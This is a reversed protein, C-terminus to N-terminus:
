YLGESYLKPGDLGEGCAEPHIIQAAALAVSYADERSLFVGHQDIFGQDEDHRHLFKSGDTRLHIQQHMDRSYHRVGILVGGDASRIAACVIRRQAGSATTSAGQKSSGGTLDDM